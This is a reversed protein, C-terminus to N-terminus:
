RICDLWVRSWEKAKNPPNTKRNKNLNNNVDKSIIDKYGEIKKKIGEEIPITIETNTRKIDKM